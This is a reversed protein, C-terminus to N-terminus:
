DNTLKRYEELVQDIYEPYVIKITRKADNLEEEYEANTVITAFGGPNSTYVIDDLVWHHTVIGGNAGYKKSVFSALESDSLFWDYIPDYCENIILLIWHYTSTGYYNHAIHEPLENQQLDYEFWFSDDSLLDKVFQIKKTIDAVLVGDYQIKPINDFYM